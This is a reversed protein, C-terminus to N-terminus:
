TRSASEFMIEVAIPGERVIYITKCNSRWPSRVGTDGLNWFTHWDRCRFAVFSVSRTSSQGAAMYAINLLDQNYFVLTDLSAM